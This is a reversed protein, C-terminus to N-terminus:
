CLFGYLVMFLLLECLLLVIFLLFFNKERNSLWSKWLLGFFWLLSSVSIWLELCFLRILLFVCLISLFIIFMVFWCMWLMMIGWEWIIVRFCLWVSFLYRLIMMLDVWECKGIILLFLFWMLFIRIVFFKSGNICLLVLVKLMFLINCWVIIMGLFLCM